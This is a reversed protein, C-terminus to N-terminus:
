TVRRSAGGGRGGRWGEEMGGGDGEGEESDEDHSEVPASPVLVWPLGPEKGTATLVKEDMLSSLQSEIWKFM